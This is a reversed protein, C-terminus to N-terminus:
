QVAQFADYWNYALQCWQNWDLSQAWPLQGSACSGAARPHLNPKTVIREFRSQANL